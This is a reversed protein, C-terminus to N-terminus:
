LGTAANSAVLCWWSTETVGEIRRRLRLTFGSEGFNAAAFSNKRAPFLGDQRETEDEAAV